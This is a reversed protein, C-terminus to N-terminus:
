PAFHGEFDLLDGTRKVPVGSPPGGLEALRINTEDELRLRGGSFWGALRRGKAAAPSEALSRGGEILRRTSSKHRCKCKANWM